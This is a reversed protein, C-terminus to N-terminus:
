QRARAYRLGWAALVLGTLGFSAPEPVAAISYTAEPAQIMASRLPIDGILNMGADFVEMRELLYFGGQYGQGGVYVRAMVEFPVGFQFVFAPEVAYSTSCARNSTFHLGDCFPRIFGNEGEPLGTITM